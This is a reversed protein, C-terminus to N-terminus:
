KSLLLTLYRLVKDIKLEFGQADHAEIKVEVMGRAAAEHLHEKLGVPLQHAQVHCLM